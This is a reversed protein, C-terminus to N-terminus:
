HMKQRKVEGSAGTGGGENYGVQMEGYDDLRTGWGGGNAELRSREYKVMFM